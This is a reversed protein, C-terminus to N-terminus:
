DMGGLVDGSDGAAEVVPRAFGESIHFWGLLEGLEKRVGTSRARSCALGSKVRRASGLTSAAPGPRFALRVLREARFVAKTARHPLDTGDAAARSGADGAGEARGAPSAGGLSSAFATVVLLWGVARPWYRARCPKAGFGPLVAQSSRSVPCCTM